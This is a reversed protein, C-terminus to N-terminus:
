NIGTDAQAVLAHDALARRMDIAIGKADTAQTVIEVKGIHTEASSQSTSVSSNSRSAVAQGAGPAVSRVYAQTEAFPPIGSRFLM